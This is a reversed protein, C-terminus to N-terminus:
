DQLDLPLSLGARRAETLLQELEASVNDVLQSQNAARAVERLLKLSRGLTVLYFGFQPNRQVLERARQTAQQQFRLAEALDGTKRRLCLAGSMREESLLVDRIAQASDPNRTLLTERLTLSRQYHAVAQEVYRAQFRTRLLDGLKDLSISVDRMAQASDPNRTLLKESLTLSRQYHGIAQEVDGEQGRRSLLDGVNSLSILVDRIAQASDPKRTLLTERLTLSRQYHGVAEEVYESQVRTKLLDGLQNLSVSVDRMAHASDPNRTLLTERLMLSRQYHGVAQEVDGGHGRTRMLNALKELSISVDRMAQASDPNRTLLTESLELSRQYHGAARKVDGEQCRTSLLDGIQNLSGSIGRMAQASDPDRKLLEEQQGLVREALGLARELSGHKAEVQVVVNASSLVEPRPMSEVVHEMQRLLWRHKVETAPGPQHEAEEELDRGIEEFFQVWAAETSKTEPNQAKLCQGILRHMGYTTTEVGAVSPTSAVGSAVILRLQRLDRLLAGWDFGAVERSCVERWWAGPIEDPHLEAALYVAQQSAPQLRGLSWRVLEQLRKESENPRTLQGAVATDAVQEDIQPVGGQRLRALYETPTCGGDSEVGLFAGVIEVALVWGDLEEALQSVAQEEGPPFRQSPQFESLLKISEPTTLKEIPHPRLWPQNGALFVPNTRATVLVHVQPFQWLVTRWQQAFFGPLDDVNDLLLLVEAPIAGAGAPVSGRDLGQELFQQRAAALDVLYRLIRPAAAVDDGQEEPTLVLPAGGIQEASRQLANRTTGSQFQRLAAGLTPFGACHIEWTGGAVWRNHAAEAVLRALTTKGFGPAGWLVTLLNSWSAPTPGRPASLTAVVQRVLGTRPLRHEPNTDFNRPTWEALRDYRITGATRQIALQQRVEAIASKLTPNRANGHELAKLLPLLQEHAAVEKLLFNLRSDYTGNPMSTFKIPKQGAFLSADDVVTSLQDQSPFAEQIATRLRELPIDSQSRAM